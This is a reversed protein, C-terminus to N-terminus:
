DLCYVDRISVFSFFFRFGVYIKSYGLWELMYGKLVEIFFVLIVVFLIFEKKVIGLFIRFEGGGVLM